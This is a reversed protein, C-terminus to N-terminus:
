KYLSVNRKDWAKEIYIHLESWCNNILHVFREENSMVNFEVDVILLM